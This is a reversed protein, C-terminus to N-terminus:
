EKLAKVVTKVNEAGTIQLEVKLEELIEQHGPTGIHPSSTTSPTFNGQGSTHFCVDTYLPESAPFRGAVSTSFIAEKTAALSSPPVFYIFKYRTQDNTTESM